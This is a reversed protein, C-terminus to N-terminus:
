EKLLKVVKRVGESEIELVYIHDTFERLDIAHKGIPFDKDLVIKGILDYVVLKSSQTLEVTYLGNSPIPYLKIEKGGESLSTIETCLSVNFIVATRSISNTCTFAEAYYTYSGATLTPTVFTTGSGLASGGSPNAFWSIAGTGSVTLSATNGQCFIATSPTGSAPNLPPYCQGMKLVFIDSSGISAINQTLPGIDFDMFINFKGLTYVNYGSDVAIATSGDSGNGGMAYGWMYNGSADLKILFIDGGIATVNQVAPGPDFDITLDFDGSLYVNNLADLAIYMGLGNGPGAIVKGWIFNGNNDLKSIYYDSADSSGFTYTAPGPDLDIDNIFLGVSIINGLADVKIRSAYSAANTSTSIAKAWALSGSSSLKVVYCNSNAGGNMTYTAASADFDVVGRFNGTIYCDGNSQVSIGTARDTNSPGAFNSVWVFDGSADLKCVFSDSNGSATTLTYNSASPDFDVTNTFEGAFYINNMIDLGLSYVQMGGTGSFNKGWVFNGSQDLKIICSGWWGVASAATFTAASPDMDIVGAYVVGVYVNGVADVTVGAVYEASNAPFTRVWALSGNPNLKCVYSSAPTLIQTGPGPDFDCGSGYQGGFYSNGQSDVFLDYGYDNTASGFTSAWSYTPTPNQGYLNVSILFLVFPIVKKM